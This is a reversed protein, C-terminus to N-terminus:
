EKVFSYFYFRSRYAFVVAYARLIFVEPRRISGYVEEEFFGKCANVARVAGSLCGRPVGSLGSLAAGNGVQCPECGRIACSGDKMVAVSPATWM